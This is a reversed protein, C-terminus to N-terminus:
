KLRGVWGSFTPNTSWLCGYILTPRVQSPASLSSLSGSRRKVCDSNSCHTEAEDKEKSPSLFVQLIIHAASCSSFMCLRFCLCLDATCYSCLQNTGKNESCM